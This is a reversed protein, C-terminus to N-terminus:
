NTKWLTKLQVRLDVSLMLSIAAAVLPVLTVVAHLLIAFAVANEAPVGFPAVGLQAFFYFPGVNGPMLAPLVGVYVLVIVLGGAVIPLNLHLGQFLLINTMWMAGWVLTTMMVAPYLYRPDKIWQSNKVFRDGWEVTKVVWHPASPPVKECLSEWVKPAVFLFSMLGLSGMISLPLLVRRLWSVREAPLYASVGLAVITLAVLDLFKEFAIAAGVQAVNRPQDASLYGVRVVDGGRSPLLINVAQGLLFARTVRPLSIQLDFNKLFVFSRAIKLGLSLVVSGVVFLIWVPNIQALSEKLQTWNIGWLSVVLLAMGIVVRLLNLSLLRKINDTM